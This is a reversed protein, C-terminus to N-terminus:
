KRPAAKPLDPALANKRLRKLERLMEADRSPPQAAAALAAATAADASQQLAQGEGRIQQRARLHNAMAEVDDFGTDADTWPLDVPEGSALRVQLRCLRNHRGHRLTFGGADAEEVSLEHINEIAVQTVDGRVGRQAWLFNASASVREWVLLDLALAAAVLLMGPMWLWGPGWQLAVWFLLGGAAALAIVQLMEAHATHYIRREYRCAEAEGTALPSASWVVAKAVRAALWHLGLGLGLMFPLTLLLGLAKV